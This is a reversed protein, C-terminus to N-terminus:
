GRRDGHVYGFWALTPELGLLDVRSRLGASVSVAPWRIGRTRLPMWNRVWSVWWDASLGVLEAAGDFASLGVWLALDGCGAPPRPPSAALATLAYWRM